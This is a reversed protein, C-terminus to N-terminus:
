IKQLIKFIQEFGSQRLIKIDNVWEKCFIFDLWIFWNQIKGKIVWCQLM